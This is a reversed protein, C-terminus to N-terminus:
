ALLLSRPAIDTQQPLISGFQGARMGNMVTGPATSVQLMLAHELAAAVCYGPLHRSPPEGARLAFSQAALWRSRPWHKIAQWVCAWVALFEVIAGQFQSFWLGTWPCSSSGLADLGLWKAALVRSARHMGQMTHSAQCTETEAASPRWADGLRPSGPRPLKNSAGRCDAAPPM